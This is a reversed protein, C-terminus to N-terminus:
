PTSLPRGCLMPPPLRVLRDLESRSLKSDRARERAEALSLLDAPGLSMAHARGDRM